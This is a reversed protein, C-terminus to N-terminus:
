ESLDSGKELSRHYEWLRFEAMLGVAFEIASYLVVPIATSVIYSKAPLFLGAVGVISGIIVTYIYRRRNVEKKGLRFTTYTKEELLDKASLVELQQYFDLRKRYISMTLVGKGISFISFVFLGVGLQLFGPTTAWAYLAISILIFISGIFLYFSGALIDGKYIARCKDLLNM